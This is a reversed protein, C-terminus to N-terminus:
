LKYQLGRNMKVVTKITMFESGFTAGEVSGQKKSYWNMIASNLYMVYGTCSRRTLHDGAHDADVFFCIVVPLGLPKPANPPIPEKM